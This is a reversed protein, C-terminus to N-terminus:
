WKLTKRQFPYYSCLQDARAVRTKYLNYDLIIDPKEIEKPGGKGRVYVKSTTALHRTSLCYIDRTSKWKCALLNQKRRFIAEGKKLQKTKFCKPLGKRNKMVTGVGSSKQQCLFTFLNPSTYFQDM